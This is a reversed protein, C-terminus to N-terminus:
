NTIRIEKIITEIEDILEPLFSQDIGYNIVLMSEYMDHTSNDFDIYNMKITAAINGLELQKFYVELQREILQFKAIKIKNEYLLNLEKLFNEFCIRYDEIDRLAKYFAYSISSSFRIKQEEENDFSFNSLEMVLKRNKDYFHIANM